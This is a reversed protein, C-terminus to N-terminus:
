RPCQANGSAYSKRRAPYRRRHWWWAGALGGITAMLLASAEPVSTVGAVVGDLRVGEFFQDDTTITISLTNLGANLFPSGAPVSFSTLSAFADRPLTALVNGNLSLSGSDDVAWAGSISVQALNSGALNFTTSFTYPAPGNNNTSANRAIWDSNPGNGVWFGWWDANNPFVTQAAVNSGGAQPPVTWHADSVGGTAILNNNADLGTSVNISAGL